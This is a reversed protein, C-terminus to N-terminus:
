QDEDESETNSDLESDSTETGSYEESSSGGGDDRIQVPALQDDEELLIHTLSQSSTLEEVGWLHCIKSSNV